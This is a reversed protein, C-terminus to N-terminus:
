MRPLGALIRARLEDYGWRQGEELWWRVRAERGNRSQQQTGVLMGM